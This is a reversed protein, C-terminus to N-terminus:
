KWKTSFIRPSITLMLWGWRLRRSDNTRELRLMTDTGSMFSYGAMLTVDPMLQYSASFDIMHGLTMNLEPLKTATAM